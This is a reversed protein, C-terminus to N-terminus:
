EETAGKTGTSEATVTVDFEIYKNELSGLAFPPKSTQTLAQVEVNAGQVAQVIDVLSSQSFEALNM